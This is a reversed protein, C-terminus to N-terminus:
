WICGYEAQPELVLSKQRDLGCQWEVFLESTWGRQTLLVTVLKFLGAIMMDSM